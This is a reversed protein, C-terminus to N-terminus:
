LSYVSPLLSMILDRLPPSSIHFCAIFESLSLHVGPVNHSLALLVKGRMLLYHQSSLSQPKIDVLDLGDLKDMFLSMLSLLALAM